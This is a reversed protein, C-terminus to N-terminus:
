SAKGALFAQMWSYLERKTGFGDTSITEIGGGDNVMRVLKVGGYAYDLHYNGINATFKGNNKTYPAQPSETVKNIRDTLYELNKQTIRNMIKVGENKQTIRNMIKVGEIFSLGALQQADSLASSATPSTTLKQNHQGISM